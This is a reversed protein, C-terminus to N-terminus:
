QSVRAIGELAKVQRYHRIEIVLAVVLGIAGVLVAVPLAVHRYAFRMDPNNGRLAAAVVVAVISGFLTVAFTMLTILFAVFLARAPVAYWRPRHSGL